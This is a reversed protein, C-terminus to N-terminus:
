FGIAFLTGWKGRHWCTAKVTLSTPMSFFPTRRQWLDELLKDMGCTWWPPATSPMRYRERVCQALDVVVGQFWGELYEWFSRGLRFCTQKLTMLADRFTQGEASKTSGSVNRFKVMGRIDRESDNNHLPLGPHNLAKLLGERHDRFNNIVANEWFTCLRFLQCCDGSLFYKKPM